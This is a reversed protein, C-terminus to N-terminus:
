HYGDKNIHLPIIKFPFTIRAMNLEVFLKSAADGSAVPYKVNTIRNNNMDLDGQMTDGTQNIYHIDATQKTLYHTSTENDDSIRTPM